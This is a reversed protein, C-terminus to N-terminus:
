SPACEGLLAELRSELEAQGHTFELEVQVAALPTDGLRPTQIKVWDKMTCLVYQAEPYSRCWAELDAIDDATFGHHDPWFRRELVHAGLEVMGRCFSEPNGIACFLLVKAGRLASVDRREDPHSWLAAPRHQATLLCAQPAYRMVRRRLEALEDLAVQNARTLVVVDARSLSSLPERMLGGPLLWRAAPPHTADLLVIDLDRGLRRHQFGDDLVLSQMDLEEEALKASALRDPHQLHPVDPFLLELELGEDNQGNDLQGYGRSLVAVRVQRARLWRALWAVMPSKGTGGVSVNGVSIVKLPSHTVSFWGRDYCANRAWIAWAYPLSAARLIMRVARLRVSPHPKTLLQRWDSLTWLNRHEDVPRCCPALKGPYSSKM